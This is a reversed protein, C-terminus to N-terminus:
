DAIRRLVRGIHGQVDSLSSGLAGLSPAGDSGQLRRSVDRGLKALDDRLQDDRVRELLARYRMATIAYGSTPSVDRPEIEGRDIAQRLEAWERAYLSLVDQLERLVAAQREDAADRRSATRRVMEIGANGLLGLAVGGLGILGTVWADSVRRWGGM